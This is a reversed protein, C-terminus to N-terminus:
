RMLENLDQKGEYSIPYNIFFGAKGVRAQGNIKLVVESKFLASLSNLLVNKMDLQLKVPLSFDAQAPIQILTDVLFHGLLKGDIWADGEAKKLNLRSRNPNYYHLNMSLTTQKLGLQDTHVNDISKFDLDKINRCSLLGASVLMLLFVNIALKKM